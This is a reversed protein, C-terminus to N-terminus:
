FYKEEEQHPKIYTPQVVYHESEIMKAKFLAISKQGELIDRRIRLMAKHKM